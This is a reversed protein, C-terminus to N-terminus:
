ALIQTRIKEDPVLQAYRSAIGMDTKSLVMDMNSLLGRFFAWNQEDGAIAQPRRVMANWINKWLAALATGAPLIVRSNSWSFV